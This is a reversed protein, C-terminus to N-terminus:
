EAPVCICDEPCCEMKYKKQEYLSRTIKSIVEQKLEEKTRKRLDFHYGDYNFVRIQRNM